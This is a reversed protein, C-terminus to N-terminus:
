LSSSNKQRSSQEPACQFLLNDSERITGGKECVYNTPDWQPINGYIHESYLMKRSDYEGAQDTECRFKNIYSVQTPPYSERWLAEQNYLYIHCLLCCDPIPSLSKINHQAQSVQHPFLFERLKFAHEKGLQSASLYHGMCRIIQEGQYPDRDLNLCPREWKNGKKPAQLFQLLYKHSLKPAKPFVTSLTQAVKRQWEPFKDVYSLVQDKEPPQILMIETNATKHTREVSAAFLEAMNDRRAVNEIREIPITPPVTQVPEVVEGGGQAVAEVEPAKKKKRRKKATLNAAANNAAVYVPDKELAPPPPEVRKLTAKGGLTCLTLNIGPTTYSRFAAEFQEMATNM